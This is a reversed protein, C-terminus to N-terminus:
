FPMDDEDDLSGIIEEYSDDDSEAEIEAKKGNKSAAKVSRSNKAKPAAEETSATNDVNVWIDDNVDVAVIRVRTKVAKIKVEGPEFTVTEGDSLEIEGAEENTVYGIYQEPYWTFSIRRAKLGGKKKGEESGDHYCRLYKDMFEAQQGIIQFDMITDKFVKKGEVEVRVPQPIAVRGYLSAIKDKSNKSEFYRIEEALHIIRGISRNFNTKM